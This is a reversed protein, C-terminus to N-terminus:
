DTASDAGDTLPGDQSQDSAAAPLKVESPLKVQDFIPPQSWNSVDAFDIHSGFFKAGTFSVQGSSFAASPFTINGASFEADNFTVKAGSFKSGEFSVDSGLFATHSFELEGKSFEAGDFSLETGSFKSGDFSIKAGRIDAHTFSIKGGLFELDGSRKTGDSFEVDGLHIIGAELWAGAFSINGGSFKARSFDISSGTFMAEGFSVESGCFLADNFSVSGGSFEAFDFIVRGGSFEAGNFTNQSHFSFGAATFDVEGGSFVANSFDAGEFDAGTFDLNLGQWSVAADKRLHATIVRIVSDRVTRGSRFALWEEPSTKRNPEPSFPMRLYACLVDICTQRNVIWDDALGAMAHVGALRVAPSDDGLQASIATFRENFVRTRDHMSDAEAIKQRRYAVILAVLAGAGAVSAFVLQAVGVTDHLSPEGHRRFGAIGILVWALVALAALALVAVTFSVVLATRIHWMRPEDAKTHGPSPRTTSM